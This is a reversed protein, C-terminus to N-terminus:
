GLGLGHRSITQKTNVKKMLDPWANGISKWIDGGMMGLLPNSGMAGAPMGANGMAGMRQLIQGIGFPSMLAYFPDTNSSQTQSSSTGGLASTVGAGAISALIPILWAPM